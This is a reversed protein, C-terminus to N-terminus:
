RTSPLTSTWSTFVEVTPVPHKESLIAKNAQRMDLCIRIDGMMRRWQCWLTSGAPQTTVEIVDLEELKEIVKKRRSFPIRRQPQAVPKFNADVHLKLQDNKLKGLGQFVDPFKVRLM